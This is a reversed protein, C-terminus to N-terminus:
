SIRVVVSKRPPRDCLAGFRWALDQEGPSRWSGGRGGATGTSSSASMLWIVVLVESVGPCIILHTTRPVAAGCTTERTSQGRASATSAPDISWPLGTEGPRNVAPCRGGGYFQIPGLSPPVRPRFAAEGESSGERRLWQAADGAADRGLASTGAPGM